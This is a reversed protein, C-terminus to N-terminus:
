RTATRAGKPGASGPGRPCRGPFARRKQQAVDDRPGLGGAFEDQGAFGAVRHEDPPPIAQAHGNGEGGVGFAAPCGFPKGPGAEARKPGLHDAVGHAGAVRLAHKDFDVAAALPGRNGDVRHVGRALIDVLGLRMQRQNTWIEVALIDLQPLRGRAAVLGIEARWVATGIVQFQRLLLVARNRKPLCAADDDAIGVLQPETRRVFVQHAAHGGDRAPSVIRADLVHEIGAIPNGLPDRRQPGIQQHPRQRYEQEVHRQPPDVERQPQIAGRPRALRASATRPGNGAFAPVPSYTNTM